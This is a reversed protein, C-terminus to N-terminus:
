EAAVLAAAEVLLEGLTELHGALDARLRARLRKPHCTGLQWDERELEARITTCLRDLSAMRELASVHPQEHRTRDHHAAATTLTTM